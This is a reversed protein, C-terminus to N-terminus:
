REVCWTTAMVTEMPCAAASSVAHQYGYQRIDGAGPCCERVVRLAEAANIINYPLRTDAHSAGGGNFDMRFSSVAKDEITPGDTQRLDMILCGGAHDWAARLTDRWAEHLHLMGLALVLDYRQGELAALDGEPVHHFKQDPHRRRARAIMEANIDVGTYRLTKVHEALIAAFGGQACGIDLVTMGDRLRDRLFFWESEYVEGTAARREDFFALVSDLGWAAANRDGTVV